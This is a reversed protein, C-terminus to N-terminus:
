EKGRGLLVDGKQTKVLATGGEAVKVLANEMHARVNQTCFRRGRNYEGRQNKVSKACFDRSQSPYSQNSGRIHRRTVARGCGRLRRQAPGVARSAASTVTSCSLVNRIKSPYRAALVSVSASPHPNGDHLGARFVYHAGHRHGAVGLRVPQEM